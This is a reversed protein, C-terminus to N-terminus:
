IKEYIFHHAHNLTKHENTPKALALPPSSVFCINLQKIYTFM